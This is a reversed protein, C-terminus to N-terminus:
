FPIDDDSAQFEQAPDSPQTEDPHAIPREGRGGLLVIRSNPGSVRIKTTNRKNGDKDAWEEYRISGEVYIQKGKTVYDRVVQAAKGFVEVRHWETREQKNGDKGTWSESTAISFNAVPEGSQLYRIEPDKGVNGVLTAKNVSAM